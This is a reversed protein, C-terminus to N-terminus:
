VTRKWCVGMVLTAKLPGAIQAGPLQVQYNRKKFLKREKLESLVSFEVNPNWMGQFKVM